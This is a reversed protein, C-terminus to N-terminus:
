SAISLSQPLKVILSCWTPVNVTGASAPMAIRASRLLSHSFAVSLPLALGVDACCMCRVGIADRLDRDVGPVDAEAAEECRALQGGLQHPAPLAIERLGDWM